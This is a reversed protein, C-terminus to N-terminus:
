AKAELEAIHEATLMINDNRVILEDTLKTVEEDSMEAQHLPDLIGNTLQRVEYLQQLLSRRAEMLGMQAIPAQTAM